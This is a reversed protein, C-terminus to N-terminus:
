TRRSPASLLKREPEVSEKSNAHLQRWLLKNGRALLYEIPM